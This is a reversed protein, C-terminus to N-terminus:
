GRTGIRVDKAREEDDTLKANPWLSDCPWMLSHFKGLMKFKYDIKNFSPFRRRLYFGTEYGHRLFHTSVLLRRRICDLEPFFLPCRFLKMRFFYECAQYLKLIRYSFKLLLQFVNLVLWRGGRSPGSQGPRVLRQLWGPKTKQDKSM